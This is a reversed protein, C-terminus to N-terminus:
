EAAKTDDINDDINHWTSILDYTALIHYTAYTLDSFLYGGGTPLQLINPRYPDGDACLTGDDANRNTV